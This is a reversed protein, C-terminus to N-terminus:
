IVIFKLHPNNVSTFGDLCDKPITVNVLKPNNELIFTAFYTCDLAPFSLAELSGSNRITMSAGSLMGVMKSLDIKGLQENGEIVIHGGFAVLEPLNIIELSPNSSIRLNLDGSVFNPIAVGKLEPNFDINIQGGCFPFHLFPYSQFNIM